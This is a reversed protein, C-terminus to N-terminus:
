GEPYADADDLATPIFAGDDLDGGSCAMPDEAVVTTDVLIVKRLDSRRDWSKIQEWTIGAQEPSKNFIFFLAQDRTYADLEDWAAVQAATFSREGILIGNICGTADALGDTCRNTWLTDLDGIAQQLLDAVAQKITTATHAM